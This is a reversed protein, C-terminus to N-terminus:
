RVGMPRVVPDMSPRMTMAAASVSPIGPHTSPAAAGAAPANPIPYWGLREFLMRGKTALKSHLSFLVLLMPFLPTVFNIREYQVGSITPITTILRHFFIFSAVILVVQFFIEMALM